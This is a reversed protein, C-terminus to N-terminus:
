YVFEYQAYLKSRRFEAPLPPFPNSNIVARMVAQDLIFIGSPEIIKIEAISGNRLIVFSVFVKINHSKEDAVSTAWNSRLINTVISQYWAYHLSHIDLSPMGPQSKFIGGIAKAEKKILTSKNSTAKSKGEKKKKTITPKKKPAEKKKKKPSLILDPKKKEPAPAPTKVIDQAKKESVTKAAPPAKSISSPLSILQASIFKLAPRNIIQYRSAAIIGILLFIHLSVSWLLMYRFSSSKTKHNFTDINIDSSLKM